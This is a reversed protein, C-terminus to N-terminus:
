DALVAISKGFHKLIKEGAEEATLRHDQLPVFRSQSFGRELKARSNAPPNHLGILLVSVDGTKCDPSIGLRVDRVVYVKGKEPLQKYLATVPKSFVANVCVVKNGTNM